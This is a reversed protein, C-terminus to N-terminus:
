LEDLGKKILDLFDSSNNKTITIGKKTPKWEINVPDAQYYIRIDLFKKGKYEKLAVVYKEQSNKPLEGIIKAKDQM